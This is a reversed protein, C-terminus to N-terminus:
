LRIFKTTPQASTLLYTHLYTLLYTTVYKPSDEKTPIPIATACQKNAQFFFLSSPLTLLSPPPYRSADLLSLVRVCGLLSIFYFALLIGVLICCCCCVCLGVVFYFLICCGFAAHMYRLSTRASCSRLLRM